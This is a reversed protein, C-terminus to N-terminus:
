WDVTVCGDATVDVGFASVTVHACVEVHKKKLDLNAKDVGGTVSVGSLEIVGPRPPRLTICIELDGEAVIAGAADKLAVIGRQQMAVVTYGGPALPSASDELAQGSVYWYMLPVSELVLCGELMSKVDVQEALWSVPASVVFLDADAAFAVAEPAVSLNADRAAVVLAETVERRVRDEVDRM